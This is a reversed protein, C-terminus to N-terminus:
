YTQSKFLDGPPDAVPLITLTVYGCLPVRVTFSVTVSLAPNVEDIVLIM